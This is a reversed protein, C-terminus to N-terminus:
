PSAPAPLFLIPDVMTNNLIVSFHLHPGTARGTMGSLAIPEGRTVPQGPQVDIRSLHCYMTILGQGHDVFVTNGNFFYDGTDIVTGDAAASIPTGEDVAIDLGSHPNREQGNFFRRLGFPSSHRGRAPYDLWLSAPPLESWHSKAAGIRKMDSAIRKEDEPNPNVKRKDAIQLRQEAYKKPVVEFEYRTRTAGSATLIQRGAKTKLPIGVVAVHGGEHELVLVRRGNFRASPARSGSAQLPVLAFGGPVAAARPLGHIEAAADNAALPPSLLLALCCASLLKLLARIM